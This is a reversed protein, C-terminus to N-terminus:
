SAKREAALFRVEHLAGCRSCAVVSSGPRAQQTFQIVGLLEFPRDLQAVFGNCLRHRTTLAVCRLPPPAAM